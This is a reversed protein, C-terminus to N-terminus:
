SLYNIHNDISFQEFLPAPKIEGFGTQVPTGKSSVNTQM